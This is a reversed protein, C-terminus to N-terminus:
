AAALHAYHYLLLLVDPVQLTDLLTNTNTGPLADLVCVTATSLSTLVLASCWCM